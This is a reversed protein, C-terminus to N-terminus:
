ILLWLIVIWRGKGEQVLNEERNNRLNPIYGRGGNGAGGGGDGNIWEDIQESLLCKNSLGPHQKGM